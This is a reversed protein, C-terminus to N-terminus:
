NGIPTGGATSTPATGVSGNNPNSVIVGSEDGAFMRTGGNATAPAAGSTFGSAGAGSINFVYGSKGSTGNTAAALKGDILNNTGLATM